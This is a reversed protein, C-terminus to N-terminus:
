QKSLFPIAANPIMSTPLVGNWAAAKTYEVLQANSALAAAKASIAAAEAEGLARIGKAEAEAKKFQSDAEAQAKAVAMKNDIDAAEKQQGKTLVLQTAVMKDSISKMYTPNFVVREIQVSDILLAGATAKVMRETMTAIPGNANQTAATATYEGFTNKLETPVVRNIVRSTVGDVNKYKKYINDVAGPDIHWSVSVKVVAPQTDNSLVPLDEFTNTFSQVSIERVTDVFPRKWHLGPEVTETYAGNRLVVGRETEDITYFSGLILMILIMGVAASIISKIPNKLFVEKM